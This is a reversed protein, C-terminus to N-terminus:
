IVVSHMNRVYCYLITGGAPVKNSERWRVFVGDDDYDDDDAASFFQFLM